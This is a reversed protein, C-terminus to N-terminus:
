LSFISDSRTLSSSPEDKILQTPLIENKNSSILDSDNKLSTVTENKLLPSQINDYTLEPNNTIVKPLIKYPQKLLKLEYPDDVIKNRYIQIYVGVTIKDNEVLPINSENNKVYLEKKKIFQRFGISNNYKSFYFLSSISHARYSSYDNSNRFSLVFKAYTDSYNNTNMNELFVSVYENNNVKDNGNPYLKIKWIYEGIMFEPSYTMDELKEWDNIVWEYYGEEQIDEKGNEDDNKILEKISNIYQGLKVNKYICIYASIKAKNKEFLFNNFKNKTILNSKKIFERNGYQKISKSLYNYFSVYPIFCSSNKYNSLVLVYNFFINSLDNENINSNEVNEIFISIFNNLKIEEEEEEEKNLCLKIKWKHGDIAFEPSYNLNNLNNWDTIKWHYLNDGVFNNKNIYDDKVFFKLEDIYQDIKYKHVRIYAGITIKGNENLIKKNTTKNIIKLDKKEVFKQFGWLNRDRSFYNLSSDENGIFCSFDNCNRISLVFNASIHLSNENLVDLNKLWMSMSDEKEEKKDNSYLLIQWKFKGILFEPGYKIDEIKNWNEIEWEYYGESIIKNTKRKDYKILSKLEEIYQDKRNYKYIRIFAGVIVKDDKILSIKSQDKSFLDNKDIFKLNGFDKKNNNYYSISSVYSSHYSYNNYNRFTLIFKVCIHTTKERITNVNELFISVKKKINGYGNPWLKIKWQYGGAMFMPSWELHQLKSWNEIKWEYYSEDM